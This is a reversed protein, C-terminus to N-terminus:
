EANHNQVNFARTLEQKTERKTDIEDDIRGIERELEDVSSIVYYGRSCSVIPLEYEARIEKILDRVTTAKLGVKEGLARSSIADERGPNNSLLRAIQDKAQHVTVEDSEAHHAARSM